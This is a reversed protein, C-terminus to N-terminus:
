PIIPHSQTHYSSNYLALLDCEGLDACKKMDYSLRISFKNQKENLINGSFM